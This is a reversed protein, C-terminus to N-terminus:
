SSQAHATFLSSFIEGWSLLWQMKPFQSIAFYICCDIVVTLFVLVILLCVIRQNRFIGYIELSKSSWFRNCNPAMVPFHSRLYLFIYFTHEPLFYATPFIRIINGRKFILRIMKGFKGRQLPMVKRFNFPFLGHTSRSTYDTDAVTVPLDLFYLAISPGVERLRESKEAAFIGIM